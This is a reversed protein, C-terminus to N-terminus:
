FLTEIGWGLCCRSVASNVKWPSPDLPSIRTQVSGGPYPVLPMYFISQAKLKMKQSFHTWITKLFYGPIWRAHSQARFEACSSFNGMLFIIFFLCVFFFVSVTCISKHIWDQWYDNHIHVESFWFKSPVLPFEVYVIRFM